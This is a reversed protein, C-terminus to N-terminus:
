HSDKLIPDNDRSIKRASSPSLRVTRGANALQKGSRDQIHITVQVLWPWLEGEDGVPFAALVTRLDLDKAVVRRTEGPRLLYIPVGKLDQMETIQGWAVSSGLERDDMQEYARAVPAVLFDVTTWLFFDGTRLDPEGLVECVVYFKASPLLQRGQTEQFKQVERYERQKKVSQWALLKMNKITVGKSEAQNPAKSEQAACFSGILLLTLWRLRIPHSLM